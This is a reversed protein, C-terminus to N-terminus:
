VHKKRMETQNNLKQQSQNYITKREEVLQPPARATNFQISAFVVMM